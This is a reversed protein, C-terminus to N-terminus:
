GQRLPPPPLDEKPKEPEAPMTGPPEGGLVLEPGISPILRLFLVGLGAGILLILPLIFIILIKKM